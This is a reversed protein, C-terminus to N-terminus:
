KSISAALSEAPGEARLLCFVFVYLPLGRVPVVDPVVFWIQVSVLGHHSAPFQFSDDLTATPSGPRESDPYLPLSGVLHTAHGKNFNSQPISYM